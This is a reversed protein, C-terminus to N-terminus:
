PRAERVNRHLGGCRLLSVTVLKREGELASRSTLIKDALFKPTYSKPRTYDIHPAEETKQLQHGCELCFKSVPPITKGCHPCSLDLKKGCELCFKAGNPLETQCESCRM